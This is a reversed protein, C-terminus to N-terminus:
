ADKNLVCGLKIFLEMLDDYTFEGMSRGFGNRAVKVQYRKEPLPLERYNAIEDDEVTVKDYYQAM